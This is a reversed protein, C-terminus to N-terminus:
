RLVHRTKGDIAYSEEVFKFTVGKLKEVEKKIEFYEDWFKYPFFDPSLSIFLYDFRIGELDDLKLSEDFPFPLDISEVKPFPKSYRDKIWYYKEIKDNIGLYYVWNGLTAFDFRYAEDRLDDGYYIDHHHDVNYINFRDSTNDKSQCLRNLLMDHDKIFSINCVDIDKAKKLILSKLSKLLKEDKVLFKNIHILSELEDWFEKFRKGTLGVRDNYLEICEWSLIDMDISLVNKINNM